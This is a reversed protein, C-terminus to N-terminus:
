VSHIRIFDFFPFQEFSQVFLLHETKTSLSNSILIWSPNLDSQELSNWDTGSQEQHTTCRSFVHPWRSHCWCDVSSTLQKTRHLSTRHQWPSLTTHQQEIAQVRNAWHGQALTSWPATSNHTRHKVVLQQKWFLKSDTSNVGTLLLKSCDVQSVAVARM